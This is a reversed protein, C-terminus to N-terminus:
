ETRGFLRLILSRLDIKQGGDAPKAKFGNDQRIEKGMIIATETQIKIVPYSIAPHPLYSLNLATKASNKHLRM